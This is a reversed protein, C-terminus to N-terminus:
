TTKKNDLLTLTKLFDDVDDVIVVDDVVIIVIVVISVVFITKDVSRKKM